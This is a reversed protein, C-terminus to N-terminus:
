IFGITIEQSSDEEFHSYTSVREPDSVTTKYQQFSSIITEAIEAVMNDRRQLEEGYRDIKGQLDTKDESQERLSCELRKVQQLLDQNLIRLQENEHELLLTYTDASRDNVGRKRRVGARPTPPLQKEM